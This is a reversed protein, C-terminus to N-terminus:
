NKDLRGALSAVVTVLENAEVPKAIHTSFGAMIAQMRDQVRAYATLAVSPIRKDKGREQERVRRILQYGDLNPMGIDSILLDFTGHELAALADDGNTVGTVKAGHQALEVTILDLADTEDDVVLIHLGDLNARTERIRPAAQPLNESRLEGSPLPLRITFIAGQGESRNEVAITGGHLEVLHRVIALGLGLGGHTRTTSGDAQRFREFVHPLFNPDIGPGTDKVQILVHTDTQNVSIEVRGGTPTFKAANSLVNWVVQQLRDPDGSILRLSADIITEIRIDKAEMAPRVADLAADVVSVLDVPGRNLQLKGTIVRSVDLIDEIIQKQAWANREIVELAHKSNERDLRGSNLMRSWGIVANLPTRLEHSLTALFEDKLRNAREADARAAREREFLETSAAEARKRQMFQGIQGGIGVALRMLQDDPDRIEPSFFELVGWFESGISIPFGFAGRLGERLAIPARPFNPDNVVNDVWFPKGSEWIRGPLGVGKKFLTRRSLEDFESTPRQNAHCIELCHLVEEQSDLRWLLGVDWDLTECAAQLIRQAGEEVDRSESLITTVAYQLALRSETRKRESIDRTFCRTHIFKGAERYVSSSISVHKTTGDKCRLRADYNHLLEGGQLRRLIDEIALQDAHFDAINHGVYEERAYGLMDLEAQNVRLVTGDPGAWHLGITANEFFDVLEAESRQLAKEANKRETIDRKLGVYCLPEGADDLMAFASLEIHKLEGAKTLSVVEGRYENEEVLTRAVENFVEEGLHIAPTKDILEEDTYGLLEAHAANQELYFGRKDIIAIPEKAHKFIARYLDDRVKGRRGFAPDRGTTVTEQSM